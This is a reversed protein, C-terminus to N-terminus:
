RAGRGERYVDLSNNELRVYEPLPRRLAALSPASMDFFLRPLAGKWNGSARNGAIVNGRSVTEGEFEKTCNERRSDCHWISVIANWGALEFYNNMVVNGNSDDRFRIVDGKVRKFECSDIVNSDSHHALYICVIPLNPNSGPGMSAVRAPDEAPGPGPARPRGSVDQPYNALTHNKIDVFACGTIRNGRSNVIGIASYAIAREPLRANGINEFVCREVANSGNWNARMERDGLFLVARGVYDRVTLGRLVINTAEGRMASLGFFPRAPPDDGAVFRANTRPPDSEITISRSPNYYTWVVSQGRYEGEDSRVKVVVDADPKREELIAHVRELSAVPRDRSGADTDRGRPSMYILVPEGSAARAARVPGAAPSSRGRISSTDAAARARDGPPAGRDEGACRCLLALAAGALFLRPARDRFRTKSARINM